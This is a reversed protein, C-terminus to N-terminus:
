HSNPPRSRTRTYADHAWRERQGGKRWPLRFRRRRTEPQVLASLERAIRDGEEQSFTPSGVAM